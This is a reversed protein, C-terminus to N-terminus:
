LFTLFKFITHRHGGQALVPRILAMSTPSTSIQQYLNARTLLRKTRVVELNCHFHHYCKLCETCQLVLRDNQLQQTSGNLYPPHLFILEFSAKSITYSIQRVQGYTTKHIHPYDSLLKTVSFMKFGTDPM